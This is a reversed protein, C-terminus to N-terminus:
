RKVSYKGPRQKNAWRCFKAIQDDELLQDVSNYSSALEMNGHAKHVASHCPRCIACSIQLIHRISSKDTSLRDLVHELGPGLLVLAKEIDGKEKAGAAHLLRTRVRAWTSKPILHHKTLQIYRDCLECEGDFLLMGDDEEEENDNDDDNDVNEPDPDNEDDSLDDSIHDVDQTRLWSALDKAQRDSLDLYESLAAEVNELSESNDVDGLIAEALVNAEELTSCL